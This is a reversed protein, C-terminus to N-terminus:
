LVTLENVLKISSAEKVTTTLEAAEPCFKQVQELLSYFDKNGSLM